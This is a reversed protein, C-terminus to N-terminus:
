ADSSFFKSSIYIYVYTNPQTMFLTWKKLLLNNSNMEFKWHNLHRLFNDSYLTGSDTMRETTFTCM